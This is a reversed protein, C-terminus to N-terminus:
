WHRVHNWNVTKLLDSQNLYEYETTSCPGTRQGGNSIQRLTSLFAASSSCTNTKTWSCSQCKPACFWPSDVWYAFHCLFYMNCYDQGSMLMKHIKPASQFTFICMKQIYFFIDNASMTFLYKETVSEIALNWSSFM